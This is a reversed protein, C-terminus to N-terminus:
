RVAGVYPDAYFVTKEPWGQLVHRPGEYTNTLAGAYSIAAQESNFYGRVILQFRLGAAPSWSPILRVPIRTKKSIQFVQFVGESLTDYDGLNVWHPSVEPHRIDHALPPFTLVNGINIVNPDSIHPNVELVALLFANENTGYVQKLM